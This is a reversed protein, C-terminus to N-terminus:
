INKRLVEQWLGEETEMEWLWKGLLSLNMINLDIVGLGGQEKTM